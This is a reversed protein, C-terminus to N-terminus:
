TQPAGAAAAKAKFAGVVDLEKEGRVSLRFVSLPGSDGRGAREGRGCGRNKCNEISLFLTGAYLIEQTIINHGLRFAGAM